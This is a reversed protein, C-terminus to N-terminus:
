AAGQRSTARPAAAARNEAAPAALAAVMAMALRAGRQWLWRGGGGGGLMSMLLYFLWGVNGTRILILMLIVFGVGLAIRGFSGWRSHLRSAGISIACIPQLTVGKDAAIVAGLGQVTTLLAADFDGIAASPTALDLIRGVKADPLIGELGYGTEVRLKHPNM